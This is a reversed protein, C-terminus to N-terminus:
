LYSYPQGSQSQFGSYIEGSALVPTLPEVGCFLSIGELYKFFGFTVSRKPLIM